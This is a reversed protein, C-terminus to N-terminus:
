VRVCVCASMCVCVCVCVSVPTEIYGEIFTKITMLQQSWDDDTYRSGLEVPVTRPGAVKKLYELSPPLPFIIFLICWGVKDVIAICISYTHMVECLLGSNSFEIQNLLLLKYFKPAGM